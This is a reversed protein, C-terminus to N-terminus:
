LVMSREGAGFLVACYFELQFRHFPTDTPTTAKHMLCSLITDMLDHLIFQVLLKVIVVPKAGRTGFRARRENIRNIYKTLEPNKM